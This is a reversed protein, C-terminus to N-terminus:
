GMKAQIEDAVAFINTAFEAYSTQYDGTFLANYADLAEQGANAFDDELITIMDNMVTTVATCSDVFAQHTETLDDTPTIKDIEAFKDVMDQLSDAYNQVTEPNEYDTSFATAAAAFPEQLGMFNETFATLDQLYSEYTVETTPVTDTNGTSSDTGANDPTSSPTSSGAGADPTVSGTDENSCATLALCLSLALATATFQKFQKM